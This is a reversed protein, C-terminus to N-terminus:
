LFGQRYTIIYMIKIAHMYLVTFTKEKLPVVLCKANQPRPVNIRPWFGIVTMMYM